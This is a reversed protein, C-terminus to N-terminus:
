ENDSSSDMRRRKVVDHLSQLARRKRTEIDEGLDSAESDNDSSQSADYNATVAQKRYNKREHKRSERSRPRRYNVSLPAFTPRFRLSLALESPLSFEYEKPLHFDTDQPTEQSATPKDNNNFKKTIEARKTLAWNEIDEGNTIGELLDDLCELYGKHMLVENSNSGLRYLSAVSKAANAFETKLQEANGTSNYLAAVSKAANKFESTLEKNLELLSVQEVNRTAPLNSSLNSLDMHEKNPIFLSISLKITDIIQRLFYPVWTASLCVLSKKCGGDRRLQLVDM